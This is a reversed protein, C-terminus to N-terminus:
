YNLSEYIIGGVLDVPAISTGDFPLTLGYTTGNCNDTVGFYYVDPNGYIEFTQGSVMIDTDLTLTTASNIITVMAWNNTITNKVKAGVVVTSTFDQGTQVLQFAVTSTTTGSDLQPIRIPSKGNLVKIYSGQRLLLKGATKYIPSRLNDTLTYEIQGYNDFVATPSYINILSIGNTLAGGNTILGYNYLKANAGIGIGYMYTYLQGRNILTYAGSGFTALTMKGYNNIAGAFSGIGASGATITSYNNIIGTTGSHFIGMSLDGYNNITGSIASSDYMAFGPGYLTLNSGATCNIVAGSGGELTVTGSGSLLGANSRNVIYYDGGLSHSSGNLVGRHCCFGTWTTSGTLNATSNTYYAGSLVIISSPTTHNGDIKKSGGFGFAFGGLLGYSDFSLTTIGGDIFCVRGFRANLFNGVINIYNENSGSTLSFCYGTGITEINGFTISLSFGQLQINNTLIFVSSISTGFYNGQGLIYYPIKNVYTDINFLVFSGWSIRASHSNIYFGEKFLNSTVIFSGNLRVEYIKWWTLTVGTATATTAKSLTVTNADSGQNGKAVIITGFAIGSGSVYMGVELNANNADSIASLTTNTATNALITGTNITNSLAYEPTLYPSNLGGRGTTNNVGYSSDVYITNSQSISTSYSLLQWSTTYQYANGTATDTYGDGAVGFHTPVGTGTTISRGQDTKINVVGM